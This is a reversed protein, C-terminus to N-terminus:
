LHLWFVPRVKLQSTTPVVNWLTPRMFSVSAGSLTTTEYPANRAESGEHVLVFERM